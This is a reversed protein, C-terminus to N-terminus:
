SLYKNSQNLQVRQPNIKEVIDIYTQALLKGRSEWTYHERVRQQGAKGMRSRREADTALVEMARALDGIAQEPTHASIKIGTEDTVQAGPGGLDLCIVPRGAAMAELCVWGGSDHLSPHVLVHCEQLKQLSKDRPLKGLLKVRSSIGLEEILNQLREREGGEGLLWYECNDPLNAQAFARVSLHFGKWHLFRGMSIFRITSSESIPFSALNEIEKQPLATEPFIQLNKVGMLRLRNATDQTTALVFTSREATGKVFPDHEGIWRVLDRFTEYIKGRLSFDVWFAKPASEGGGVPGWLFPTDLFSILSPSWYRVFTVHRTLDFGIKKHLPRVVFYAWLQWLYYHFQIGRQGYEWKSTWFPLDFYVFYLQPVPNRALESEISLRNESRTLVWTEHYKATEIATNWGVGEESGKGPECFYASLLIKM